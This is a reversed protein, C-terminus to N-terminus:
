IRVIKKKNCFGEICGTNINKFRHSKRGNITIEHVYVNVYISMLLVQENQAFVPILIIEGDDLLTNAEIPRFFLVFFTVVSLM